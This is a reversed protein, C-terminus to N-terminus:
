RNLSLLEFGGSGEQEFILLRDVEPVESRVRRVAWITVLPFPILLIAVPPYAWAAAEIKATLVTFAYFGLVFLLVQVIAGHEFPPYSCTFPIKRFRVLLIEALLGTWLIVVAAHLVAVLWGWCWAYLPMAILLVAPLTFSFMIKRAVSCGVPNASDMLLRFIWNARVDVPIEFVFRMGVLVCFVLILPLSLAAASPGAAKMGSYAEFSVQSAIVIGLGTFAALTVCHQESRFLTRLVFHYSAREPGLALFMRDFLQRMGTFRPASGTQVDPTEPIQLFRRRYSKAYSVIALVFALGLGVLATHGANIEAVSARSRVSQFLGLFWVSPLWRLEGLEGGRHLALPVAFSTSLMGLFIMLLLGRVYLSVPRFLRYPLVALLTGVIAFVAMCSFLSALIITSAHAGFFKWFSVFTEESACVVVPFLVASGANVDITFVLTLLMVASLNAMFIHSAPLPLAVLNMHDRRDPFISEWRWTVVSGTVAMALVIFFYEDPVAAGYVDLNPDHRMWRLLSGYKDFLLLSIFSGPLTLLALAIGMGFGLEDEASEGAGHFVRRCFLSVLTKFPKLHNEHGRDM